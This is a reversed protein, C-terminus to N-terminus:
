ETKRYLRVKSREGAIEEIMRVLEQTIQSPESEPDKHELQAKVSQFIESGTFRMVTYGARTLARDRERDHKAQEKTREHYDHGDAEVAFLKVVEEDYRSMEEYVGVLFDLRYKRPEPFTFDPGLQITTQPHIMVRYNGTAPGWGGLRFGLAPSMQGTEDRFIWSKYFNSYKVLDILFLQEIPSECVNELIWRLDVFFAEVDQHRQRKFADFSALILGELKKAM